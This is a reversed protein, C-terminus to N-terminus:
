RLRLASQGGVLRRLRTASFSVTDGVTALSPISVARLEPPDADYGAMQVIGHTGNDRVWVVTADGSADLSPEPHFLDTSSQSIAM